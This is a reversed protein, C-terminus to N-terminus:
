NKKATSKKHENLEDRIAQMQQALEALAKGVNLGQLNRELARLRTDFLRADASPQTLPAGSFNESGKADRPHRWLMFISAQDRGGRRVQEICGNSRLRNMVRGYTNRSVKAQDFMATTSGQWLMGEVKAGDRDQISVKATKLMEDYIKICNAHNIGIETM